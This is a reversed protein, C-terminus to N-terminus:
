EEGLLWSRVQLSQALEAQHVAPRARALERRIAVAENIAHLAEDHQELDGVLVALNHLTGALYPLFVEPRARASGRYVEVAERMASVAEAPRGMNGLTLALNNLGRALDPRFADPHAGALGRLIAVAESVAEMAEPMRGADVLWATLNTLSLALKPRFADPQNGALERYIGVAEIITALAQAPRDMNGLGRSLNTLSMALDPRFADPHARALDRRIAVAETITQLAEEHRGLDTLRMSHNNLSLALLPRFADPRARALEHFIGTAETITDLAQEPQGLDALRNSLHMLSMALAPRFADPREQALEHYIGTAETIADLAPEHRGLDALRNSLNNLSLALSPRFTDPRTRALDRRIAIAETIAALADERQGLTGLRDALNTLSLALSPRFADPRALALGRVITVAETVAALAEEHRGLEALCDALGTLSTSLHLRYADPQDRALEHYIDTAETIATLADDRQGMAALNGALNTLSLALYPRFADPRVQAADRFIGTAETSAELAQERQGVGALRRALNTISLALDPLHADPQAGALRRNITVAKRSAELAQELRGLATLYTSINDFCRALIPRFVDPRARVLDVCVRAAETSAALAEEWRGVDGSRVALLNLSEALGPHVSEPDSPVLRRHEAVLREALSAAVDALAQSYRPLHDNLWTLEAVGTDPADIIRRLGTLLPEPAEVRTAVEIAPVALVDAHEACVTSLGHDLSGAFVRHAAARAYVTLLQTAQAHTTGTHTATSLLVPVLDPQHQLHRGVFREALRDPQLAGWPLGPAPPYLGAIWDRVSARRDRTQDALRPVRALLADARDRDEAGFLVAAALADTLAEMSLTPLVGRARAARVWYRREHGLLRDEVAFDRGTLPHAADLLDALATMHLTLATQEAAQDLAPDPLGRALGAWPHEGLDPVHPLAAAFADVAARYAHRRGTPDPELEGLAHETAGDLLAEVTPDTAHLAMWWSGTTRALLLVKVPSGGGHRALARLVRVVQETHTEAYDVVILTPAAADALAQVQTAQHDLWLVAWGEAALGEAWHVALRTKGQGGPGHLLWAGFGPRGVWAHLRALLETRGRFPVVQRSAVLLTAPSPASADAPLRPEALNQWEIPELMARQGTHNALVERFRRDHHLVYAPVAELAAHRRRAPDIAVVGALLDGCFVAAGSLGAWPSPGGPEAAPPHGALNLLYRDSVYRDGPNITASLHATDTAQAERQVLEPYGWTECRIGPQYTVTRGWRVGAGAPPRWRPDDVLVLAADDRGGPTGRWVVRARFRDASGLPQVGTRSGEAGVVHASTVVLSGGLVYGSGIGDGHVRVVRRGDV